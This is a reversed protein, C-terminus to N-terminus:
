GHAGACARAGEYGQSRTCRCGESNKEEEKKAAKERKLAEIQKRKEKAARKKEKKEQKRKKQLYDAGAELVNMVLALKKRMDNSNVKSGPTQEDYGMITVSVSGSGKGSCVHESNRPSSRLCTPNGVGLHGSPHTEGWTRPVM